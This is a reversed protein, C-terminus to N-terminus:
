SQFTLECVIVEFRLMDYVLRLFECEFKESFITLQWVNLTDEDNM